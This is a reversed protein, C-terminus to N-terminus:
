RVNMRTVNQRVTSCASRFEQLYAFARQADSYPKGGQMKMRGLLGSLIVHYWRKLTYRPISPNGEPDPPDDCTKVLTVTFNGSMRPTKGLIIVGPQSMSVPFAFPNTNFRRDAVLPDFLALLRIAVGQCHPRVYYTTRGAEVELTYNETWINTLDFFERLTAMLEARLASTVVGPLHTRADAILRDWEPLHIWDIACLEDNDEQVNLYGRILLRGTATLVDPFRVESALLRGMNDQQMFGSMTDEAEQASFAGRITNDMLVERAIKYVLVESAYLTERAIFGFRSSVSPAHLVERVGASPIMSTTILNYLVERVITAPQVHPDGVGAWLTERAIKSFRADPPSPTYLTERAAKASVANATSTYLTERAIKYTNANTM